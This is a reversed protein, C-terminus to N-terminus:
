NWYLKRVFYSAYRSCGCVPGDLATLRELATLADLTELTRVGDSPRRVGNAPRIAFIGVQSGSVGSALGGNGNAWHLYFINETLCNASHLSEMLVFTM